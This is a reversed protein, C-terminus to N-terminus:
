FDLDSFDWHDEVGDGVGGRMCVKAWVECLPKCKQTLEVARLGDPAVLDISVPNEGQNL